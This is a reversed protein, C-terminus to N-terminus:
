LGLSQILGATTSYGKLIDPIYFLALVTPLVILIIWIFSIVTRWRMYSKIRAIEEKLIKTDALNEILLKKLEEDQNTDPM